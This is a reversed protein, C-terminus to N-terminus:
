SEPSFSVFLGTMQTEMTQGYTVMWTDDKEGNM